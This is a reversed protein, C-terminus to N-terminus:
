ARQERPHKRSAPGPAGAPGAAGVSGAAVPAADPRDAPPDPARVAARAPRLGARRVIDGVAGEWHIPMLHFGALGPIERLRGIIEVAIRIGEEERRARDDGAQEMRRIWADPVEMGPVHDRMYRAARASRIPAVGALIPARRDLGLDRVRTMFAAFREVNFVIQTQVFRAGAEIKKQLRAPRFDYPPAFPNEVAGPLLDPPAALARGSLYAGGRLVNVLGLLQLSDLDFVPRAQPHDGHVPHDGTLCLVNRVGLAAAGLLDSQLAIRNRDRCTVHLIPDVGERVLIAAAAVASMHAVGATNDPVNVADVHDRVLRARRAVEAPDAGDGTAIECTVVPHGSRLAEALGFPIGSRDSM